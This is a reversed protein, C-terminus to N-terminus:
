ALDEKLIFQGDCQQCAAQLEVGTAVQLTIPCGCVWPRQKKVRPIPEKIPLTEKFIRFVSLDPTFDKELSARLPESLSTYAHGKSDTPVAVELGFQLAMNAFEQNHRGGKSCDKEGVDHNFLHVTEHIVTELVDYPDEFLREATIIIEHVPEGEMTRFGDAKFTGCLTHKKGRTQISVTVPPLDTRQGGFKRYAWVACRELENIIPAQSEIVLPSGASM